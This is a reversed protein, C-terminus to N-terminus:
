PLWELMLNGRTEGANGSRLRQFETALRVRPAVAYGVGVTTVTGGGLGFRQGVALDAGGGRSLPVMLRGGVALGESQDDGLDILQYGVTPALNWASGLPRIYSRLEGYGSRFGGGQGWQAGLMLRSQGLRLDEVGVVWAAGDGIEGYGAQLRTRFSPRQIMELAVEPVGETWRRFVPSSQAFGDPEAVAPLGLCFFMVPILLVRM